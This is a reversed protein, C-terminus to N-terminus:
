IIILKLLKKKTYCQSCNDNVVNDYQIFYWLIPYPHVLLRSYFSYIYASLLILYLINFSLFIINSYCFRGIVLCLYWRHTVYLKKFKKANCIIDIKTCTVADHAM